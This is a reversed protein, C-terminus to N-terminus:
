KLIIHTRGASISLRRSAYTIDLIASYFDGPGITALLPRPRDPPASRRLISNACSEIMPMKAPTGMEDLRDLYQCLAAEQEISLRKNAGPHNLKSPRGKWRARLRQYPVGHNRAVVAIKPKDCLELEGLADQIVEELARAAKAM